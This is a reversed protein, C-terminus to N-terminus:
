FNNSVLFEMFLYLSEPDSILVSKWRGSDIALVGQVNLPSDDLLVIPNEDPLHFEMDNWFAPQPKALGNDSTFVDDFLEDVSTGLAYLIEQCYSFTTNTCLSVHVNKSLRDRLRRVKTLHDYDHSDVLGPLMYLLKEDFVMKNYELVANHDNKFILATHGKMPYLARNVFRAERYTNLKLRQKVFAVSRDAVISHVNKNNFLVGDFDLLLNM